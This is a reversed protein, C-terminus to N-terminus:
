IAPGILGIIATLDLQIIIIIGNSTQMFNKNHFM